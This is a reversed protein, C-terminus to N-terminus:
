GGRGEQAASPIDDHHRADAADVANAIRHLEVLIHDTEFHSLLECSVVQQVAQHCAQVASSHTVELPPIEPDFSVSHIHMQRVGVMGNPNLKPVIFDFPQGGYVGLTALNKMAKLLEVDVRGVEKHAAFLGGVCGDPFDLLVKFLLLRVEGFQGPKQFGFTEFLARQVIQFHDLFQPKARANFVVGPIKVTTM